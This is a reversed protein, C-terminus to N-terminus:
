ATGYNIVLPHNRRVAPRSHYTGFLETLKYTANIKGVGTYLVNWDDLQGQTEQELGCVILINDKGYM